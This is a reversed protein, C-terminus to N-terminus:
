PETTIKLKDVFILRIMEKTQELEFIQLTGKKLNVAISSEDNELRIEVNEDVCVDWVLLCVLQSSVTYAIGANKVFMTFTEIHLNM